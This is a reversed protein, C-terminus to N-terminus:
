RDVYAFRTSYRSGATTISYRSGATTLATGAARRPSATGAARRPSAPGAARSQNMNNEYWERYITNTKPTHEKRGQEIKELM